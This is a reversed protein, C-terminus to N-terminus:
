KIIKGGGGIELWSGVGRIGVVVIHFLLLLLLSFMIEVKLFLCEDM